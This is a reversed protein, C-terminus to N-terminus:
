ANPYRAHIFDAVMEHSFGVREAAIVIVGDDRLRELVEASIGDGLLEAIPITSSRQMRQARALLILAQQRGLDGVKTAWYEKLVPSAYLPPQESQPTVDAFMSLTEPISLFAQAAPTSASRRIAEPASTLVLDLEDSSLPGLSLHRLTEFEDVRKQIPNGSFVEQLERRGRLTSPRAFCILRWHDPIRLVRGILALVSKELDRQGAIEELGDIVLYAPIPHPFAALVRDLTNRLPPDGPITFLSSTAQKLDCVVVQQQSAILNDILSIAVASKGIGRDGVVVVPGENMAARLAANAGRDVTVGFAPRQWKRMSALHVASTSRVREIDRACDPVAELRFSKGLFHRLSSLDVGTAVAALSLVERGLADIATQCSEGDALVARMLNGPDIEIRHTVGEPLGWFHAVRLLSILDSWNPASGTIHQIVLEFRRFTKQEDETRLVEVRGQTEDKSVDLRGVREGIRKLRKLEETAEKYALVFRDKTADLPDTKQQAVLQGFAKVFADESRLTTANPPVNLKDDGKAQILIRGVITNIAIDDIKTAAECRLSIPVSDVTSPTWIPTQALLHLAIRTAIDVRFVEGATAASGGVSTKSDGTSAM